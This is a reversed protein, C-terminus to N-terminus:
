HIYISVYFCCLTLLLLLKSLIYVLYYFPSHHFFSPKFWFLSSFCSLMSLPFSFSQTHANSTNKHTSSTHWSAQWSALSLQLPGAPPPPNLRAGQRWRGVPAHQSVSLSPTFHLSLSLSFSVWPSFFPYLSLPLLLCVAMLQLPPPYTINIYLSLHLLYVWLQFTLPICPISSNEEPQLCFLHSPSPDQLCSVRCFM